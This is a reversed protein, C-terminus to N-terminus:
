KHMTEIRDPSLNRASHPVVSAIEGGAIKIAAARLALFQVKCRPQMQHTMHEWTMKTISRNKCCTEGSESLSSVTLDNLRSSDIPFWLMKLGLNVKM